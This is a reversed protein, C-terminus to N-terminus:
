KGVAYVNIRAKFTKAESLYDSNVIKLDESVWMRFTFNKYGRAAESNSIVGEYLVREKPNNNYMEFENFTKVRNNSRYCNLVDAGDNVLFQKAWKEDLDSGDLKEITITYKVGAAKENFKLKFDNTHKDGQLNKGVEDKIPFQNILYIYNDTDFEYTFIIDDDIIEEEVKVTCTAVVKGDPTKVTITTTGPKIGTIKGNSDVTAISPDSSEWILKKDTANEPEIIATLKESEGVKIDIKNTNLIIDEVPIPEVKVTCTATVKGDPTKVTITATGPKVGTIKGNEDVTVISPDSSEWILDRETANEPEIKAILQDTEGVQVSVKDKDFKIKDVPVSNSVITVVCTATVKGDPTRATIVATGEKIGNVRGENDVKAVTPDSSEWILEDVTANDPKITSAIVGSTGVKLSMKTPTLIIKDVPIKAVIVKVEAKVKGDKTRVTITVEGEKLAVINGNGDVTAISPDSSEWILAKNSANYPEIIAIIRKKSGPTMTVKDTNLKIRDVDIPGKEEKENFAIINNVPQKKTGSEKDIPIIIAQGPLLEESTLNNAKMLKEVTTNYMKAINELSDGNKVTYINNDAIGANCQNIDNGLGGYYLHIVLFVIITVFVVLFYMLGNRKYKNEM